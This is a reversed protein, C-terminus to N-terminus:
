GTFDVLLGFKFREIYTGGRWMDWGVLYFEGSGTILYLNKSDQKIREKVELSRGALEVAELKMFLRTDSQKM